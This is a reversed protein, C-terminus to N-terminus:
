KYIKDEIRVVPPAGVIEGGRKKIEENLNKLLKLDFTGFCQSINVISYVSRYDSVLEENTMEKIDNM